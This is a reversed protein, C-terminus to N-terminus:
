GPTPGTKQLTVNSRDFCPLMPSFGLLFRVILMGRYRAPTRWAKLYSKITGTGTFTELTKQRVKRQLLALIKRDYHIKQQSLQDPKKKKWSYIQDTPHAVVTFYNGSVVSLVRGGKVALYSQIQYGLEGIGQIWVM